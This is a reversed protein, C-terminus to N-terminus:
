VVMKDKEQPHNQDSGVTCYVFRWGSNKVYKILDLGKFTNTVEVKCHCPIQNLEYRLLRTTKGEKKLNLKFKWYPTWSTLWMWSRTKKLHTYLAEGDKSCFIYDIHNQFQGDPSTWTYLRRKHKQFLTSGIVLTNEQYCETLRQEWTIYYQFRSQFIQPLVKSAQSILATTWYSVNNPM